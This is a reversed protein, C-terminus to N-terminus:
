RVVIVMVQAVTTLTAYRGDWIGVGGDDVADDVGDGLEGAEMAWCEEVVVRVGSWIERM